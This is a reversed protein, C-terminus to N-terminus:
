DDKMEHEGPEVAHPTESAAQDMEVALLEAKIQKRVRRAHRIEQAAELAAFSDTLGSEQERYWAWLEASERAKEEASAIRASETRVAKRTQIYRKEEPTFWTQIAM